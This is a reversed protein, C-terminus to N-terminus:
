WCPRIPVATCPIFDLILCNKTLDDRNESLLRPPPYACRLSKPCYCPITEYNLFSSLLYTMPMMKQQNKFDLDGQMVRATRSTVIYALGM